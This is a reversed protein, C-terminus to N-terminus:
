NIQVTVSFTKLPVAKKEWKRRYELSLIDSGKGQARFRFVQDEPAGVIKKRPDVLKPEFVSEGMPKLLSPDNRVVHWAYGTGPIAELKVTLIGGLAIQFHGNNDRETITLSDPSGQAMSLGATFTVLISLMTVINLRIRWFM